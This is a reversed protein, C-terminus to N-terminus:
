HSEGHLSRGERTPYPASVTSYDHQMSTPLAKATALVVPVGCSATSQLTSSPFVVSSM